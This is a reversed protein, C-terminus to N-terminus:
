QRWEPVPANLNVLSSEAATRGGWAVVLLPLVILTTLLTTLGGGWVVAAVPVLMEAGVPGGFFAAPALLAVSALLALVAPRIRTAAASWMARAPSTDPDAALLTQQAGILLGAERTAFALIPVLAVLLVLSDLGGALVAGLLGGALALPLTLLVTGALRWSGLMTQLLVLIVVAVAPLLWWMLHGASQQEAYQPPIAAHYEVPFDVTALAARVDAEVESLRRGEVGANVNVRRLTDDHRIVALNPSVRVEAVDGLRAHGGSPTNIVLDQVNNISARTDDTGKVIVQFIKQQEFMYGVEMGQLVTATARRVDGPKIGAEKAAELDVEIEVIPQVPDQEVTPDVLGDVGALAAQVEAAKDRLIDHEIGYVRVQFTRDDNVRVRELQREPYSMVRNTLGPYGNITDQVSQKVASYEAGDALTIWIESANVDVSTDSTIARGVHGAVDVVGDLTRVEDAARGTIRLMEEHSTGPTADLEILLSRDAVSALVPKDATALPVIGVAVVGLAVAALAGVWGARRGSARELAGTYRAKLATLSARETPVEEDHSRPLLLSALTPTLTLGVVMGVALALLYTLAVPRLVQGDLGPVLFTPAVAVASVIAGFLVPVRSRRMATSLIGIRKDTATATATTVTAPAVDTPTDPTARRARARDHLSDLDAVADGVIVTLALALGILTMTNLVAGTAALILATATGSLLLAAAGIVAHRWSGLGLGIVVAALVLGALAAWGLQTVASELFSAPRFVTTKVNIGELGPGLDEMVKEVDSTVELVDAEPFKEIVLLLGPNDGTVADGILPQHHEQLTAVDALTLGSENGEIAIRGLDEPTKIPLVHQVGLRQNPSEIFGGTGPTSAELFSLPSVWVANGTSAVVDDLSVGAQELRQPDVQVQLQQERQGWTSVNAVGPVGMLAPKVTWRALVSMDIASVDESSLQIMMLRSSSSKPQMLVPPTSVNPLAFAQTLREAVLQRARLIDTGPEFVLEISSLGPVSVSRIEDLWAVGNLLDAEMPSTILQEVEEASLGLAETQIEVHPPAFEPLNDVSASPLTVIGGALVGVAVAAVLLRFRLSWQVLWSIM